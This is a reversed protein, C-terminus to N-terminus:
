VAPAPVGVVAPVSESERWLLIGAWVWFAPLLILSAIGGSALTLASVDAWSAAFLVITDAGLAIGVWGLKRPLSSTRLILLALVLAVGGGIAFRFFAVPDVPSPQRYVVDVAVRNDPNSYLESLLHLRSLNWLGHASGALNAIVGVIAAWSAWLRGAPRLQEALAIVAFTGCIGALLFCVNALQRGTPDDAFSRFFKGVDDSRQDSPTIILFAVAYLVSLVALGLAGAAGARRFSRDDV